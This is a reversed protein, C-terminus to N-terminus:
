LKFKAKIEVRLPNHTQLFSLNEMQGIVWYACLLTMAVSKKTKRLDPAAVM